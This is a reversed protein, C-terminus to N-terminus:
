GSIEPVSDLLINESGISNLEAPAMIDSPPSGPQQQATIAQEVAETHEATSLNSPVSSASVANRLPFVILNHGALHVCEPSCLLKGVDPTTQFLLKVGNLSDPPATKTSFTGGKLGGLLFPIFSVPGSGDPADSCNTATVVKATVVEDYSFLVSLCAFLLLTTLSEPMACVTLKEETLLLLLPASAHIIKPVAFGHLFLRPLFGKTGNLAPGAPCPVTEALFGPQKRTSVYNITLSLQQLSISKKRASKTPTSLNHMCEKSTVTKIRPNKQLYFM